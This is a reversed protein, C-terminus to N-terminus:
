ITLGIKKKVELADLTEKQSEIEAGTLIKERETSAMRQEPTMMEEAKKIEEPSSEQMEFKM